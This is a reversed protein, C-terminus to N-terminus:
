AADITALDRYAAERAEIMAEELETADFRDEIPGAMWEVHDVAAGQLHMHRSAMQGDSHTPM